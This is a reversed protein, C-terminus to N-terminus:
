SYFKESKYDYHSSELELPLSYLNFALSIREQNSLNKPVAHNISPSFLVLKGVESKISWEKLHGKVMARFRIDGSYKPVKLYYVGSLIAKDKHNHWGTSEGSKSINFWFENVPLGLEKYPVILPNGIINKGELCAFRFIEKVRPIYEVNLYQNEWRGKIKHSQHFRNKNQYLLKIIDNRSKNTISPFYENIILHNPLNM